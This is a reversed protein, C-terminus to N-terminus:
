PGTESLIMLTAWKISAQVVTYRSDKDRESGGYYQSVKVMDLGSYLRM